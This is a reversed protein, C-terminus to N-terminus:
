SAHALFYRLALHPIDDAIRKTHKNHKNNM